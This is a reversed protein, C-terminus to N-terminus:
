TPDVTGMALLRLASLSPLFFYEGGRTTVFQPIAACIFPPTDGKPDAPIVFKADERHYGVVPCTDNGANFDLGYNMWQQQVFEFQRFLSACLAMFIIGHEGTDARSTPDSSAGYPLGRRLIRRRNNLVSTPGHKGPNPDLMDRTNARRIHSSVPCRVGDVDDAYTFDDLMRLYAAVRKVEQPTRPGGAYLIEAVALGEAKHPQWAAYDPAVMLPVGDDWRGIMKARLTLKAENLSPMKKVTRYLAASKDIYKDFSATNQHLKRYAMFTGNRMLELPAAVPFIEQAEDPHGLVFEGAALPKWSQDPMLKSQGIAALAEKAPDLQGEYIPDGIADTFGFHEKPTPVARGGGLPMMLASAAQFAAKEPGHGTVLRVGEGSAAVLERLWQTTSELEADPTGDANAQADVAIWIHVPPSPPRWLEDWTDHKSLEIDGLITARAAMGDIFEDPMGRLTGSPVGLAVLGFFSFGISVAVRPKGRGAEWPEASTVRRRVADVFDRGQSPDQVNLFFYRAKVFGERPYARVITGQIDALDLQRM